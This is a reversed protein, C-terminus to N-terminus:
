DPIHLQDYQDSLPFGISYYRFSSGDFLDNSKQMEISFSEEAEQTSFIIEEQHCQINQMNEVNSDKVGVYQESESDTGSEEFDHLSEVENLEALCKMFSM